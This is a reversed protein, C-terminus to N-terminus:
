DVKEDAKASDVSQRVIEEAAHVDTYQAQEPVTRFAIQAVGSKAQQQWQPQEGVFIPETRYALMHHKDTHQAYNEGIEHQPTKDITM